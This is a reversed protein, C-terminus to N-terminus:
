RGRDDAAALEDIDVELPHRIAAAVSRSWSTGEAQAASQDRVGQGLQPRGLRSLSDSIQRRIDEHATASAMQLLSPVAMEVKQHREVAALYDEIRERAADVEEHGIAILSLTCRARVVEPYAELMRECILEAPRGRGAQLYADIAEGYLRQSEERRDANRALDGARACYSARYLPSAADARARLWQLRRALTARTWIRRVWRILAM